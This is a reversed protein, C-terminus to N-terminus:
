GFQKLTNNIQNLISLLLKKDSYRAHLVGYTAIRKNRNTRVSRIYPKTFQIPKLDLHTCWFDILQSTDQDEFCYLYFKLRNEDIQCCERLYSVFAKVFLPDSNIFDVTKGTKAGEGAYLMLGITKLMNRNM